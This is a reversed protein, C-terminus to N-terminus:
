KGELHLCRWPFPAGPLTAAHPPPTPLVAAASVSPTRARRPEAHRMPIPAQRPSGVLARAVAREGAVHGRRVPGRCIRRQDTRAGPLRSTGM